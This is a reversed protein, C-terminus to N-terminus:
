YITRTSSFLPNKQTRKTGRWDRTRLIKDSIRSNIYGRIARPLVSTIQPHNQIQAPVPTFHPYNWTYFTARPDIIPEGFVALPNSPV